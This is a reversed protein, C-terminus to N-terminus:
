IGIAVRGNYRASLRHLMVVAILLSRETITHATANSSLLSGCVLQWEWQKDIISWIFSRSRSIGSTANGFLTVPLSYRYSSTFPSSSENNAIRGVDETAVDTLATLWRYWGALMLRRNALQKWGCWVSRPLHRPPFERCVQSPTHAASLRHGHNGRVCCVM